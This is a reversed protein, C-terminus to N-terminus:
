YADIEGTVETRVPFGNLRKPVAQAVGKDRLMVVIVDDGIEDMGIRMGVVGDIALVQSEHRQRVREIESGAEPDIAPSYPVAGLQEPKTEDPAYGKPPDDVAKKRKPDKKM